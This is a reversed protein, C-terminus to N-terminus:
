PPCINKLAGNLWSDARVPGWSSGDFQQTAVVEGTVDLYRTEIRTMTLLKCNLIQLSVAQNFSIQQQYTPPLRTSVRSPFAEKELFSVLGDKYRLSDFDMYILHPTDVQKVWNEAHGVGADCLLCLSIIIKKM